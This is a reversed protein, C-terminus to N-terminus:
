ALAEQNDTVTCKSRQVHQQCYSQGPASQAGCYGKHHTRGIPWSCQRWDLDALSTLTPSDDDWYAITSSTSSTSSPSARRQRRKVVLREGLLSLRYLKSVIANRTGGIQDAIESSSIGQRWLNQLKDVREDTWGGRAHRSIRDAVM